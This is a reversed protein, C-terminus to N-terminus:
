LLKIEKSLAFSYIIKEKVPMGFIKSCAKAYINLQEAYAEILQNSESVRDTKFDIVVIEGNEAFVCDVAGQVVIKEDSLQEPIDQYLNGAPIETLFRMERELRDAREIRRFIDSEFFREVSPIDIAEKEKLTIFQWEYLREIEASLDSKALGFDAFQMFRHTATGRQAPTM